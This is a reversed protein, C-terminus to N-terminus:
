ESKKDLEDLTIYMNKDDDYLVLWLNTFFEYMSIQHVSDFLSSRSVVEEHYKQLNYGPIKANMHHIHHYEIGMYFYKLCYPIQTFASGCLGSNRQTWQENGVVYAPNYSHQNHFTMFAISSSLFLCALYHYIVGNHYM